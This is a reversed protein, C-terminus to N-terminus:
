KQRLLRFWVATLAVIVMFLAYSMASAYGYNGFGFQNYVNMAVSLTSNLPGGRTMVFPEELYQLQGITTIVVAFLMTGRLMPLTVFRFRAWRGAGDIEAAEYVTRPIAQLGALFVVMVFGMGRWATMVILSGMATAPQDLWHPGDIGVARLASNVLGNDPQLLFRWVIAVAVISTVVPLYFGVRFFTRMRTIGRDLALAVALALGITLPVSGLVFTATNGLAQLFVEDGLLRVYNDFGVLNVAFPDRLDTGRLDTFSIALSALVPGAMFSAFLAVFPLAFGWAILGRRARLSMPRRATGRRITIAESVM